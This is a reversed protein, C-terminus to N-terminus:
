LYRNTKKPEIDELVEDIVPDEAAPVVDPSVVQEAEIEDTFLEEYKSQM